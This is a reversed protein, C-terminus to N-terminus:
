TNFFIRHIHGSVQPPKPPMPIVVHLTFNARASGARNEAICSFTGNDEVSTVSLYLESKKVSTAAAGGEEGSGGSNNREIYYYHRLDVDNMLTSGNNIMTDKYMWM